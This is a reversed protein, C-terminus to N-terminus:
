GSPPEVSTFQVTVTYAKKTRGPTSADAIRLREYETGDASQVYWQQGDIDQLLLTRGGAMMARFTDYSASDLLRATISLVDSKIGDHTVTAAADDLGYAVTQPKPERIKADAVRLAMSLVDPAATLDRLWWSTFAAMTANQASSWDSAVPDGLNNTTKARIRYHRTVGSPQYDYFTVTQDTQNVAFSADPIDEWTVGADSSRQLDYDLDDTYGGITWAGVAQPFVGVTDVYQVEGVIVSQIEVRAKVWATGAPAVGTQTVETWGATTNSASGFSSTGNAAGTATYWNLAVRCTRVTAAARFRARVQYTRGVTAPVGFTSTDTTTDDAPLVMGATGTTGTRGLQYSWTGDPEATAAQTSAGTTSADLTVGPITAAEFSSHLYSLMNEVGQSTVLLANAASNYAASLTPIAPAAVTLTFPESDWASVVPTGAVNLQGARLYAVYSGNPTVARPPTWLPKESWVDEGVAPTTTAPNFGQAAVQAATFIRAHFYIQKDNEPDTYTWLFPPRSAGVVGTPQLITVTPASNYTAILSASYIRATNWATNGVTVLGMYIRNLPNTLLKGLYQGDFGQAKGPMTLEQVATAESWLNINEGVTFTLFRVSTGSPTGVLITEPQIMETAPLYKAHSYRIRVAITKVVAGAPISPVAMRFTGSWRSTLGGSNVFYSADSADNLALLSSAAGTLTRTGQEKVLADPLIEVTGM